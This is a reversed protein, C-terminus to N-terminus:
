QSSAKLTIIYDFRSLLSYDKRRAAAADSCGRATGRGPGTREGARARRDAGAGAPAIVVVTITDGAPVSTYVTSGALIAGIATQKGVLRFEVARASPFGAISVFVQPRAWGHGHLERPSPSGSRLPARTM